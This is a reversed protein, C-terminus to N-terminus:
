KLIERMLSHQECQKVYFDPLMQLKTVFINNWINNILSILYENCVWETTIVYDM